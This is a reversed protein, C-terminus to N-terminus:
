NFIKEGSIKVISIPYQHSIDIQYDINAKGICGEGSMFMADAQRGIPTIEDPGNPLMMTRLLAWLRYKFLPTASTDCYTAAETNNTGLIFGYADDQTHQYFLNFETRNPFNYTLEINYKVSAGNYIYNEYQKQGIYEITKWDFNFDFDFNNFGITIVEDPTSCDLNVLGYRSTLLNFDYWNSTRLPITLGRNYTNTLYELNISDSNKDANGKIKLSSTLGNSNNLKLSINEIIPYQDYDSIQPYRSGDEYFVEEPIPTNINTGYNEGSMLLDVALTPVDIVRLNDQQDFYASDGLFDATTLLCPGNFSITRSLLGIDRFGTNGAGATMKKSSVSFSNSESGSDCFIIANNIKLLKYTTENTYYIPM